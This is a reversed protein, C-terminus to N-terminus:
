KYLSHPRLNIIKKTKILITIGILFLILSVFSINAFPPNNLILGTQLYEIKIKFTIESEETNNNFLIYRFKNWNDNNSSNKVLSYCSGNNGCISRCGFDGEPGHFEDVYPYRLYMEVPIDKIYFQEEVNREPPTSFDSLGRSAQSVYINYPSWYFTRNNETLVLSSNNLADSSIPRMYNYEKNSGNDFGDVSEFSDYIDIYKSINQYLPFNENRLTILIFNQSVNTVDYYFTAFIGREYDPNEIDLFKDLEEDSFIPSNEIIESSYEGAGLTFSESYIIEIHSEYNESATVSIFITNTILLLTILKLSLFVLWNQNINSKM